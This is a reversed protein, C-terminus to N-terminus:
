PFPCCCHKFLSLSFETGPRLAWDYGCAWVEQPAEAASICRTVQSQRFERSLYSYDDNSAFAVRCSPSFSSHLTFIRIRRSLWVTWLGRNKRSITSTSRQTLSSAMKTEQHSCFQPSYSIGKPVPQTTLKARLLLGPHRGTSEVISM